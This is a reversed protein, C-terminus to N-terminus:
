KKEHNPLHYDGCHDRSYTEVSAEGWPLLVDQRTFLTSAEAVENLPNAIHLPTRLVESGDEKM